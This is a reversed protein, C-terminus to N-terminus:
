KAGSRNASERGGSQCKAGGQTPVVVAVSGEEENGQNHQELEVHEHAVKRLCAAEWLIKKRTAPGSPRPVKYARDASREPRDDRAVRALIVRGFSGVGLTRMIEYEVWPSVTVPGPVMANGEGIADM